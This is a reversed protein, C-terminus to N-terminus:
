GKLLGRETDTCFQVKHINGCGIRVDGLLRSCDGERVLLELIWYMRLLYFHTKPKNKKKYTSGSFENTSFSSRFLYTLSNTIKRGHLTSKHKIASMAICKITPDTGTRAGEGGVGTNKSVCGIGISMQRNLFKPVLSMSIVAQSWM